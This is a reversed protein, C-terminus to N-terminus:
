RTVQSTGVARSSVSMMTGVQGVLTVLLAVLVAVLAVSLAFQFSPMSRMHDARKNKAM